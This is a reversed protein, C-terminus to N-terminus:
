QKHGYSVIACTHHSGSHGRVLGDESKTKLWSTDSAALIVVNVNVRKSPLAFVEQEQLVPRMVLHVVLVVDEVVDAVAVVLVLVFEQEVLMRRQRVVTRADTQSTKLVRKM